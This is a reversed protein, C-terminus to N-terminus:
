GLPAFGCVGVHEGEKGTHMGGVVASEMGEKKVKVFRPSQGLDM